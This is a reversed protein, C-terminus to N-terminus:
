QELLYNFYTILYTILSFQHYELRIHSMFHIFYFFFQELLHRCVTVINCIM